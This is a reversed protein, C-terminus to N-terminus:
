RFCTKVRENKAQGLQEGLLPSVVWHQHRALWLEWSAGEHSLHRVRLKVPAFILRLIELVNMGAKGPVRFIWEQLSEGNACSGSSAFSFSPPM